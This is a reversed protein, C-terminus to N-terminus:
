SGGPIFPKVSRTGMKIRATNAEIAIQKMQVANSNLSTRFIIKKSSANNKSFSYPNNTSKAGHMSEAYM